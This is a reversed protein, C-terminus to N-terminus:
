IRSDGENEEREAPKENIIESQHRISEQHVAKLIASIFGPNLNKVLGSAHCKEWVENWREPQYISINNAKKYEGIKMTLAVRDALIQMLEEDVEDVRNRLNQLNELYDLDESSPKRYVLRSKIEAFHAPTIQQDADSLANKPDPHVELHVGEYGLDLAQRAVEEVKDSHGAIHSADCILTLNPFLRRLEIAMQWRPPNRYGNQNYVSFGRHIAAIPGRSKKAIRELAGIWLKLDPNIPNKVFVPIEVGELADALAQVMFPNVVTRAGIWVGSIGHKLAAHVHEPLAVETLTKMGTERGAATLWELAEEGAGEFAGPRTRPKWAGSRFYDVGLDKLARATEMVQDASEASCPGAIYMARVGKGEFESNFNM